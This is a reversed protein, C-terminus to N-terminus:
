GKKKKNMKKTLNLKVALIVFRAEVIKLKLNWNPKLYFPTIEIKM